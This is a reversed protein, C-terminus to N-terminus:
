VRAHTNLPPPLYCVLLCHLLARDSFSRLFLCTNGHVDYKRLQGVCEERYGLILCFMHIIVNEALTFHTESVLSIDLTLSKPLYCLFQRGILPICMVNCFACVKRLPVVSFLGPFSVVFLFGILWGLHPNKVDMIFAKEGQKAVKESM